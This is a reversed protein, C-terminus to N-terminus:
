LVKQSKHVQSLFQGELTPQAKNYTCLAQIFKFSFCKSFGNIAKNKTYVSLLAVTVQIKTQVCMHPKPPKMSEKGDAMQKDIFKRYAAPDNEAMDDLMKWIQQAQQMMQDPHMDKLKEPDM